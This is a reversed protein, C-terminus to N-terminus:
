YTSRNFKIHFCNCLCRGGTKVIKAPYLATTKGAKRGKRSEEWDVMAVQGVVVDGHIKSTSEVSYQNEETWFVLAYAM